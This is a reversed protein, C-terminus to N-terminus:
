GNWQKEEWFNSVIYLMHNDRSCRFISTEYLNLLKLEEIIRKIMEFSKFNHPCYPLTYTNIM